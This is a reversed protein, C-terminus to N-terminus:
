KTLKCCYTKYKLSFQDLEEGGLGKIWAMCGEYMCFVSTTVWAMMLSICHMSTCHLHVYFSAFYMFFYSLLIYSIHTAFPLQM